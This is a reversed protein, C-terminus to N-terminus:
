KLYMKRMHDLMEPIDATPRSCSFNGCVYATARGNISKYEKMYEPLVSHTHEKEESPKFLVVKNPFYHKRLAHIMATTDENGKEGVIVVQLVPGINFDISSLFFTYGIPTGKVTEAFAGVMQSVSDKLRREGTIYYLKLLNLLAVSNGSPLAGDYLEKRRVLVTESDRSNMYFGGSEEDWFREMLHRNLEVASMLYETEFTAEYLELLGWIFFVYDTFYGQIGSEGERYRHLLKGERYMNRFIFAVANLAPTLYDRNGFVQYAKSLAAIMLGNWDTLIKDDRHPHVRKERVLFLKKRISELTSALEQEYVHLSAARENIPAKLHLINKGNRRNRVEDLYNGKEEVGFLDKCLAGEKETLIADIEEETWLYFKGEEGESDADEACYFGGEPATLNRMVYSLIQHATRCYEENRTIQFAEAYALMLLAQDYLMKEFHPVKWQADTSYRHFGSGVHDYIGGLRMSSLTKEVMELARKNQRRRWYRMLFFLYSPTPFKPTNGFGGHVADFIASLSNFTYDLVSDDISTDGAHGSEAAQLAKVVKKKVRIIKGQEERWLKKILPILERMGIRGFRSEKPIYTSAFFPEWEPTMIISLPWGGAGTMLQCVTMYISDVDPKEERDVKVSVFTENMARAIEEDEFSEHAMVHCWHCTSYGISLFVPKNEQRAKRFAEEGWPYWDVPNNAHQLLYFSKENVLRNSRISVEKSEM